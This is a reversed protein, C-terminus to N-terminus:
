KRKKLNKFVQSLSYLDPRKRTGGPAEKRTKIKPRMELNKNNNKRNM